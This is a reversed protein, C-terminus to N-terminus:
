LQTTNCLIQNSDLKIPDNTFTNWTEVTKSQNPYTFKTRKGTKYTLIASKLNLTDFLKHYKM